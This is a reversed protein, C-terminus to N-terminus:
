YMNAALQNSACSLRNSGPFTHIYEEIVPVWVWVSLFHEKHGLAKPNWILPLNDEGCM